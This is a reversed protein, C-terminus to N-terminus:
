KVYRVDRWAKSTLPFGTAYRPLRGMIQQVEEVSGHDALVEVVAEDHVHLAVPYGARELGFMAYVLLDRCMAQILNEFELGGYLHVDGWYSEGKRSDRGEIVVSRRTRTGGRHDPEERTIVRPRYYALPRGSPLYMFMFQRNPQCYVKVRGNLLEIVNGPASVAEVFADQLDWWTQVVNPHSARWSDVIYRMAIWVDRGMGNHNTGPLGYKWACKEWLEPNAAAMVSECIAELDMAFTAAMKAYAGPGGQYGCNHVLFGSVTFRHRPGANKLDFVPVGGSSGCPSGRAFTHRLPEVYVRLVEAGMASRVLTCGTAVAMWLPVPGIEHTWVVHDETAQLGRYELVQRLGRFILGEHRVWEEGDWVKHALTIHEIPVLGDQTLVMQGAAICALEMVKGIQRMPKAVTTVDVGFARAYALNYLDPGTGEDYEQFARIKWHENTIWAAGRGEVNSFDAGILEKGDGAVIMARTCKGIAKLPEYGCLQAWVVAQDADPAQDLIQLMKEILTGDRDWDVRELNHPQYLSGAWRGTTAKHYKLLGRARGDFGVCALGSGYKALSTAKAGLQRLRIVKEAVPDEKDRTTAVIDEIAGKQMTTVEIGRSGLWTKLRAVQTAKPVEGDTLDRIERDVQGAAEDLFAKAKRMLRTDLAFGRENIKLDFHFVQRESLSLQPLVDDLACEARVDDACYSVFRSFAEPDDKPHIWYPSQDVKKSKPKQMVSFKRILAKGEKNKRVELGLVETAQELSSPLAMTHARAMTCDMQESRLPGWDLKEKAVYNWIAYEFMANHAVITAGNAIADILERPDSDGQAWSRIASRKGNEELCWCAILIETSPDMAYRFAGVKTVDMESRTEFDLHVKM